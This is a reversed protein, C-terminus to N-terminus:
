KPVGAYAGTRRLVARLTNEHIGLAKAIARKKHGQVKLADITPVVEPPVARPPVPPIPTYKM